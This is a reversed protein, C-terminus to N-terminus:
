KEFGEHKMMNASTLKTKKKQKEGNGVYTFYVSRRYINKEQKNHKNIHM